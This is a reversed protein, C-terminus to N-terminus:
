KPSPGKFVNKRWESETSLVKGSRTRGSMKRGDGLDLFFVPTKQQPQGRCHSFKRYRHQGM